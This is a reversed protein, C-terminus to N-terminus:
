GFQNEGSTTAGFRLYVQQLRYKAYPCTLIEM